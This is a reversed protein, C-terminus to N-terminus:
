HLTVNLITVQRNVLGISPQLTHPVTYNLTLFSSTDRIKRLSHRMTRTKSNMEHIASDLAPIMKHIHTVTIFNYKQHTTYLM